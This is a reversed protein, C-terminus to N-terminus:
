CVCGSFLPFCFGNILIGWGNVAETLQQNPGNGFFVVPRWIAAPHGEKAFGAALMRAFRDMSEQKDPPYNGILIIRM